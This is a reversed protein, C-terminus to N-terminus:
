ETGDKTGVGLVIFEAAALDIRHLQVVVLHGALLPREGQAHEVARPTDQHDLLVDGRGGCHQIEGGAFGKSLFEAGVVVIDDADGGDDDVDAFHAFHASHDALERRLGGDHDAPMYSGDRFDLLQEIGVVDDAAIADGPHAAEEAFVLGSGDAM